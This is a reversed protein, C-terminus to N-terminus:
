KYLIVIDDLYRYHPKPAGTGPQTGPCTGGGTMSWTTCRTAGTSSFSTDFGGIVASAGTTMQSLFGSNLNANEYDMVLVGNRWMKFTGNGCGAQSPSSCSAPPAGNTWADSTFSTNPIYLVEWQEWTGANIPPNPSIYPGNYWFNDNCASSSSPTGKKAFLTFYNGNTSSAPNFNGQQAQPGVVCNSGSTGNIQIFEYDSNPYLASPDTYDWMSVYVQRYGNPLHDYVLIEAGDGGMLNCYSHTGSHAAYPFGLSNNSGTTCIHTGFADPVVGSPVGNEAGDAIVLNWGAPPWANTCGTVSSTSTPNTGTVVCGSLLSQAPPPSTVTFGNFTASAPDPDTVTISYTGVSVNPVLATLQTASVFTSSAPSSGFTVTDASVFNTGTITVQTGPAGSTPSVSTITPPGTSSSIYTYGASSSGSVNGPNEVTVNVPGAANAPTVAQIQTGSVVSVNSASATGFLVLAGALFNTGTITVNTGGVTPGSNPSLGTVTPALTNYTFNVGSSSQGNEQVIVQITGAIHAPSVAQIQTSSSVTASAAVGGFSVTAGSAFNSGAITVTTGGSTPGSNPSLGTVVPSAPPAISASLSTSATHGAADKVQTSFVFTGAQTPTGSITGSTSLGLGPPITGGIASWTYPNAGGSASLAASYAVQVAGAPLSGTNIQLPSTAPVVSLTLAQTAQQAPTSADQVQVNFSFQGSATAKGALVGTSGDLTIEPPLSGSALSWTYPTTGGTASLSDSYPNQVTGNPISTTTIALTALTGKGEANKRVKLKLNPSVASLRPVESDTVAVRFDFEGETVPKGSILGTTASLTMGPPLQGAAISWTLPLHGGEATLGVAYAQRM